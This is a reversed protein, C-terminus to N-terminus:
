NTAFTDYWAQMFDNASYDAVSEDANLGPIIYAWAVVAGDQDRIRITAGEVSEIADFIDRAVDSRKVPWEEGDFVSVTHGRDLAYHVLHKYSTKM